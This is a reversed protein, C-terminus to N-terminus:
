ASGGPRRRVGRGCLLLAGCGLALAPGPEPVTMVFIGASNDQFAAYFAVEDGSMAQHSIFVERVRKGLITDGAGVLRQNEGDAHLMLSYAQGQREIAMYAVRDGSISVISNDNLAFWDEPRESGRALLRLEGDVRAYLNYFNASPEDRALFAIGDGGYAYPFDLATFTRGGGGPAVTRTDAVTEVSTGNFLYLGSKGNEDGAGFLVTGNGGADPPRVYNFRIGGQGGAILDVTDNRLRYLGARYVLSPSSVEAAFYVTDGELSPRPFGTYRGGGPPGGTSSAVQVVRGNLWAYLGDDFHPAEFAFNEGSMSFGYMGGFPSNTKPPMDNQLVLQPSGGDWAFVGQRDPGLASFLVRGDEILPAIIQPSSVHQWFSTIQQQGWEPVAMGTEAVKRVPFQQAAVPLTVILAGLLALARLTSTVANM